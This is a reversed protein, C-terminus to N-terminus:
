GRFAEIEALLRDAVPEIEAEVEGSLGAGPEFCGGEIGYIVLRGPLRDLARAMAVADALGLGHTSTGAADALRDFRDADFRHVTGTAAGCRVADIVLTLESGWWADILLTAEGDCELIEVGSPKRTRLSRAVLRGVADDGRLLNGVGVVVIRPSRRPVASRGEAM